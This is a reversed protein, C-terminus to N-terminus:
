VWLCETSRVPYKINDSSSQLHGALFRDRLRRTIALETFLMQIGTRVRRPHGIQRKYLSIDGMLLHRHVPLRQCKQQSSVSSIDVWSAPTIRRLILQPGLFGVSCTTRPPRGSVWLPASNKIIQPSLIVMETLSSRCMTHDRCPTRTWSCYEEDVRDREERARKMLSCINSARSNWM